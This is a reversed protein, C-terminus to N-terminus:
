PGVSVCRALQAVDDSTVAGTSFDVVWGPSATWFKATILTGADDAVFTPDIAPGQRAFDILSVLEIRTPLRWGGDLEACYATAQALTAMQVGVAVRWRLSTVRDVVVGGDVAYSSPNPLGQADAIESPNPM